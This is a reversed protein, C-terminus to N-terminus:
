NFFLKTGVVKDVEVVNYYICNYSFYILLTKVLCLTVRM